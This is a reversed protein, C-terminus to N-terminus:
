RRLHVRFTRVFWYPRKLTIVHEIILGIVLGCAYGIVVVKWNFGEGFSGEGFSSEKSPEFTPTESNKCKKSIPPGCLGLNGEFSSNEFTGFQGGQPILGTLQNHSLNLYALFTLSTLQRPIEGLLKNRSLDLSELEILNGLSSPIRGIFNNSSLNLVILDKLTGVLDPIEGHFGNNSLDISTFITLIKVFEMSRFLM